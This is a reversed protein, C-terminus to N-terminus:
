GAIRLASNMERKKVARGDIPKTQSCATVGATVMMLLSFKEM